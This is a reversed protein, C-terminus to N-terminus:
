RRKINTKTDNKVEESLVHYKAAKPSASIARAAQIMKVDCWRQNLPCNKRPGAYRTIIFSGRHRLGQVLLISVSQHTNDHKYDASVRHPLGGRGLITEIPIHVRGRGERPWITLYTLM